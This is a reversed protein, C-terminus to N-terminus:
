VSMLLPMGQRKEKKSRVNTNIGLSTILWKGSGGLYYKPESSTIKIKYLSGFYLYIVFTIYKEGDKIDRHKSVNHRCCNEINVPTFKGEWFTKCTSCGHYISMPTVVALLKMNM